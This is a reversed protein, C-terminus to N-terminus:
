GCQLVSPLASNQTANVNQGLLKDLNSWHHSISEPNSTTLYAVLKLIPIAKMISARSFPTLM